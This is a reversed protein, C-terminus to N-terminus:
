AQEEDESKADFSLWWILVASLMRVGLQRFWGRTDRIVSAVTPPPTAPNAPPEYDNFEHGYRPKAGVSWRLLDTAARRVNIHRLPDM